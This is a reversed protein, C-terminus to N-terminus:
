TLSYLIHVTCLFCIMYSSEEQFPTALRTPIELALSGSKLCFFDTVRSQDRTVGRFWCVKGTAGSFLAEGLPLTTEYKLLM